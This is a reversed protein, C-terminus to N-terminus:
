IGVHDQEVEAKGVAVADIDRAAKALPAADGDDHDGRAAALFVLDRREVGARVVIQGLREAHVLQQRAHADRKSMRLAPACTGVLSHELEAIQADVERPTLDRPTPALHVECRDLVLQEHQERAVGTAHERM